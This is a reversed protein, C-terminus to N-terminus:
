KLWRKNITVEGPIEFFMGKWNIEKKAAVEIRRNITEILDDRFEIILSDYGEQVIEASDPLLYELKIMILHNYDAITSQPLHAFAEKLTTKSSEYDKYVRGRFFRARGFPNILKRTQLLEQHMQYHWAEMEPAFLDYKQLYEKAKKPTTKLMISLHLFALGNTKAHTVRKGTYYEGGPKNNNDIEDEPKNFIWSAVLKHIKKGEKLRQIFPLCNAFFSAAYVEAQWLDRVLFSNGKEAIFIQRDEEPINQWNLGRGEYGKKSSSRGTETGAANYRGRVRGDPDPEVMLYTGIEKVSDRINLALGFAPHPHYAYLKDLAEKSTTPKKTKRDRQVPLHLDQYL